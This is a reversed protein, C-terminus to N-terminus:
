SRRRALARLGLAVVAIETLVTAWAAGTATWQPILLTNLAVNLLLGIWAVRVYAGIRQTAVLGQTVAHGAYISPVALALVALVPGAAVLSPGYLAAILSEAALALGGAIALGALALWAALRRVAAPVDAARALRPLGVRLAVAPVIQAAEMIRFAAAYAGVAADSALLGLVVSGLRFYIAGALGAAGLRGGDRLLRGVAPDGLRPWRVGRLVRAVEGRYPGAMLAGGGLGVLALTLAPLRAGGVGAAWLLGLLPLAVAKQILGVAAEMRMSEVGRAQAFVLGQLGQAAHYAWLLWVLWRTDADSGATALAVVLATLAIAVLRLMLGAAFAHRDGHAAGAVVLLDMGLLMAPQLLMVVLSQVFAFRGYQELDIALPLLLYFAFLLGRGAIQDAAQWVTNEFLRGRDPPM